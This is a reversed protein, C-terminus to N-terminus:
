ASPEEKRPPAYNEAEGVLETLRQITDDRAVALLTVEAQRKFDYIDPARRRPRDEDQVYPKIDFTVPFDRVFRLKGAEETVNRFYDMHSDFSTRRAFAAIQSPTADEHYPFRIHFGTVVVDGNTIIERMKKRFEWAIDPTRLNGGSQSGFEVNKNFGEGAHETIRFADGAPADEVLINEFYQVYGRGDSWIKEPPYENDNGTEVYSNAGFVLKLIEDEDGLHEVGNGVSDHDISYGWDNEETERTVVVTCGTAKEITSLFYSSRYDERFHQSHDEDKGVGETVDSSLHGGQLQLLLYAIKNEPKYYRKWEWGYGDSPMVVRIIGDRLTAKDLGLDRLESPDITVSHSSSSNTEFVRDRIQTKM